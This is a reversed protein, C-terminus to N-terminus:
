HLLLLFFWPTAGSRKGGKPRQEDVDNMEEADLLISKSKWPAGFGSFSAEDWAQHAPQASLSPYVWTLFPASVLASPLSVRGSATIWM